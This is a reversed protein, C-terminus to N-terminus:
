SRYIVKAVGKVNACAGSPPSASEPILLRFPGGQAIPLPDGDLSHLLVGECLTEISVPESAFGDGAVLIAHGQTPLDLEAWLSGISAASGRRKPFLKSVDAIQVPVELLRERDLLHARGDGLLVEIREASLAREADSLLAAELLAGAADLSSPDESQVIVDVRSDRRFSSPGEDVVGGAVELRFVGEQTRFIGKLRSLAAGCGGTAVRAIADTLRNKSFVAEPSWKWTRAAYGHVSHNHGGKAHGSARPLAESEDAPWQMIGPDLEGRTSHVVQLPPPWLEAAFKDFRELVEPSALDARSAVLVDAAQIQERMLEGPQEFDLAGPDVLVVVPQLAVCAAHPSRRVTDIIDQPRALGTPEILIRGPRNDIVAGLAEVFGEPATCCVCAGPINTIRFPEADGRQLELEDFGAEGFDNVIVAVNEARRAALQARILTTKGAGLFGAIVHLPIQEASSM